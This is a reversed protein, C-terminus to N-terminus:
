YANWVVGEKNIFESISGKRLPNLEMRLYINELETVVDAV